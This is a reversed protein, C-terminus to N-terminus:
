TSTPKLQRVAKYMSCDLATGDDLVAWYCATGKVEGDQMRREFGIVKRDGIQRLKDPRCDLLDFLILADEGTVETGLPAANLIVSLRHRIALKSPFTERGLKYHRPM